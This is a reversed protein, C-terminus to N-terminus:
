LKEFIHLFTTLKSAVSYIALNQYPLVMPKQKVHFVNIGHFWMEYYKCQCMKM